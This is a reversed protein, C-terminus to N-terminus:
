AKPPLIASAKIEIKPFAVLTLSQHAQYIVQTSYGNNQPHRFQHLCRDCLDLVWYEVIGARGYLQAKLHLDRELTSDAVEVILYIDSPGPHRELYDEIGGKVLVLNPEPESVPSLTVPDQTCIFVRDNLHSRGLAERLREALLRLASTHPSGKAVMTFIQGQILETREDPALIGLETM